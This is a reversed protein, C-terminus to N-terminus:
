AMPLDPLVGIVNLHAFSVKLHRETHSHLRLRRVTFIHKAQFFPEYQSLACEEAM